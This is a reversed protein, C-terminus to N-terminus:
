MSDEKLVRTLAGGILSRFFVIDELLSLPMYSIYTACVVFYALGVCPCLELLYGANRKQSLFYTM